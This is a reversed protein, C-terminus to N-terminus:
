SVGYVPENAAELLGRVRGIADHQRQRELGLSGPPVPWLWPTGPQFLMWLDVRLARAIAVLQRLTPNGLGLEITRLVTPGVGCQRALARRSVGQVQREAQIRRGVQMAERQEGRQRRNM